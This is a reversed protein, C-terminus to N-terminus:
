SRSVTCSARRRPEDADARRLREHEAPSRRQAGAAEGQPRRDAGLDRGAPRGSRRRGVPLSVFIASIKNGLTATSTTPACRCRAAAGAAASGRRRRRAHHAAPQLGGGVGALVVDNVTGGIAKRITKVEALPVRVVSLLRHRGPAGTSRRAPRSRSATSWRASRGASSVPGSSRTGRAACCRGSPVSSSARARDRARALTDILLQSPSPARSPRGSRSSRRCSTPARTSSCRRSTSVPCATSSRTTRRRSSRSTATKSVKSSGCSGCRGSAISCTRRCARRSRSSSSGRARSRCRPTGCTTRRHRLSRRRGLDPSGPRLAGGDAPPPVAAAAAAAVARPRAGRQHPFPREDDFFPAGELVSVAGVHM